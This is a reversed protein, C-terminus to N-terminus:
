DFKAHLVQLLPPFSSRVIFAIDLFIATLMTKSHISLGRAALKRAKEAIM